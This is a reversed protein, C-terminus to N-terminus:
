TTAVTEADAEEILKWRLKYFSLIACGLVPFGIILLGAAVSPYSGGLEAIVVYMLIYLGPYALCVGSSVIALCLWTSLRPQRVRNPTKRFEEGCEPCRPEPLGNLSYGCKVCLGSKRRRHRRHPGRVFAFTPYTSLLCLLLWSPARYCRAQTYGGMMFDFEQEYWIFALMRVKGPELVLDGGWIRLYAAGGEIGLTVPSVRVLRIPRRYSCTASVALVIASTTLVVIIAKRIM